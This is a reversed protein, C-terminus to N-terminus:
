IMGFPNRTVAEYEVLCLGKVEITGDDMVLVGQGTPKETLTTAGPSSPFCTM